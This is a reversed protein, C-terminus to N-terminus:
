AASRLSADAQAIAPGTLALRSDITAIAAQQAQVSAQAQAVRARFDTQDITLLVDGARVPQNDGVAVTAVYGEVRPAIVTMDSQVYADDTSEMFRGRTWWDWGYVGAGGLAALVVVALVARRMLARVSLRKKPLTPCENSQLTESNTGDPM